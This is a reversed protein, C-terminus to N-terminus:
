GMRAINLLLKKAFFRARTDNTFKVKSDMLMLTLRVPRIILVPPRAGRLSVLYSSSSRLSVHLRSALSRSCRIIMKAAALFALRSSFRRLRSSRILLSM